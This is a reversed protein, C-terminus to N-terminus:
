EDTDEDEEISAYEADVSISGGQVKNRLDALRQQIQEYKEFEEIKHTHTVSEQNVHVNLNEQRATVQVKKVTGGQIREDAHKWMELQVKALQSDVVKVVNGESDKMLNGQKDRAEKVASVSMIEVMRQYGLDEIIHNKVEAQIPQTFVFAAFEPRKMINYFDGSRNTIGQWVRTMEMRNKGHELVRNNELWFSQRLKQLVPYEEMHSINKRISEDSLDHLFFNKAGDLASQMSAPLLNYLSKPNDKDYAGNEAIALATSQDDQTM